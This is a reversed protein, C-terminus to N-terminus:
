FETNLKLGSLNRIVSNRIISDLRHRIDAFLARTGTNHRGQCGSSDDQWTWSQPLRRRTPEERPGGGGFFPCGTSAAASGNEPLHEARLLPDNTRHDPVFDSSSSADRTTAREETGRDGAREDAPRQSTPLQWLALPMVVQCSASAVPSVSISHV